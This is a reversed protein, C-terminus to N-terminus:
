QQQDRLVEPSGFVWNAAPAVIAAAPGAALSECDILFSVVTTPSVSIGDSFSPTVVLAIIPWRSVLVWPAFRQRLELGIHKSVSADAVYSLLRGSVSPLQLCYETWLPLKGANACMWCVHPWTGAIKRAHSLCWERCRRRAPSLWLNCFFFGDVCGSLFCTQSNQRILREKM